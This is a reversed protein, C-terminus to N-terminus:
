PVMDQSGIQLIGFVSKDKTWKMTFYSKELDFGQSDPEQTRFSPNLSFEKLEVTGLSEVQLAWLQSIIFFILM